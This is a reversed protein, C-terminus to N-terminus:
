RGRLSAAIGLSMNGIDLAGVGPGKNHIFSSTVTDYGVSGLAIAGLSLDKVVLSLDDLELTAGNAYMLPMLYSFELDLFFNDIYFAGNGPVYVDYDNFFTELNLTGEWENSATNYYLGDYLTNNAEYKTGSLKQAPTLAGDGDVILLHDSIQVHGGRIDTYFATTQPAPNYISTGVGDKDLEFLRIQAVNHGFLNQDEELVGYDFFDLAIGTASVGAMEKDDIKTFGELFRISNELISLHKRNKIDKIINEAYFSVFMINDQAAIIMVGSILDANVANKANNNAEIYSEYPGLYVRYCFGTKKISAIYGNESLGNVRARATSFSELLGADVYFMGKAFTGKAPLLFVLSALLIFLAFIIKGAKINM